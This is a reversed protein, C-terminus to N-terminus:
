LPVIDTLPLELFIELMQKSKGHYTKAHIPVSSTLIKISNPAFKVQWRRATKKFFVPPGRALKTVSKVARLM